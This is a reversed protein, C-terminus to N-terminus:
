NEYIRRFHRHFMRSLAFRRSITIKKKGKLILVELAETNAEFYKRIDSALLRGNYNTVVHLLVRRSQGVSAMLRSGASRKGSITKLEYMFYMGKFELIMDATRFERPNPLIFVKYGHLVVKRAAAILKGADESNLEGVSYIDVFETLPRFEARRAICEVQRSYDAGTLDHLKALEKAIDDMIYDPGGVHLFPGCNYICNEWTIM